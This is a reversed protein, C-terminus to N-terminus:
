PTVLARTQPRAEIAAVRGDDAFVVVYMDEDEHTAYYTWRREEVGSTQTVWPYGLSVLVQERTMGLIVKSARVASQVDPPYSAIKIRPDDSVAYREALEQPRMKTPKLDKGVYVDFVMPRGEVIVDASNGRFGLVAVSAGAPIVPWDLFNEDTILKEDYHLNCCTFKGSGASRAALAPDAAKVIKEGVVAGNSDDELWIESRFGDLVGKVVYRGDPKLDVRITGEVTRSSASAFLAQIPAGYTVRAVLKLQAPGAPVTWTAGVVNQRFGLGYSAMRTREVSTSLRGSGNFEAMTFFITGSQPGNGTRISSDALLATPGGYGQPIVSTAACGALAVVGMSVFLSTALKM